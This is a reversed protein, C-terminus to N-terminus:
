KTWFKYCPVAPNTREQRYLSSNDIEPQIWPRSAERSKDTGDIVQSRVVDATRKIRAGTQFPMDAWDAQPEFGSILDVEGAARM